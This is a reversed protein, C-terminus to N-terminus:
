HTAPRRVVPLPAVGGGPSRRRVRAANAQTVDLRRTWRVEEAARARGAHVATAERRDRRAAQQTSPTAADLDRGWRVVQGARLPLLLGRERRQGRRRRALKAARHNFWCGGNTKYPSKDKSFRIDRYIRFMSRKPDGGIEPASRAFRADMESVLDRMPDRVEREYEGRHAEFWTKDNHAKLQRFFRLAAPSFAM